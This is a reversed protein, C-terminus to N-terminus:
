KDKHLKLFNKTIKRIDALDKSAMLELRLEKAGDFGGVYAKFHKKMVEFLKRDSMKELFLETHEVLIKLKEELTPETKRKTDFLWPKGFVGRGIMIGDCGSMVAKERGDELSVVDGNGIVPIDKGSARVVEVVKKIDEWRAPVMSMDKKTRGHIILASINEKLLEPIWTEIENKNYGLRTKVSVPIKPAGRLAAQIIERALKPSKILAAGSGQKQVGKDPCGMNIDLGDFGLEQVMKAAFEMHKPSATFIQAVIPRENKSFKLMPLLHDYGRSDLGDASVFETWFVDPGGGGAPPNSHRSYKAIIQRFSIDTVDLMPALCFFPTSLTQWFGKSDKFKKTLKKKM